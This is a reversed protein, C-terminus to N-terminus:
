LKDVTTHKNQAKTLLFVICMFHTNYNKKYMAHPLVAWLNYEGTDKRMYIKNLAWCLGFYKQKNM